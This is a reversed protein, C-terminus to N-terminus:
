QELSVANFSSLEVVRLDGYLCALVPGVPEQWIRICELAGPNSTEFYM